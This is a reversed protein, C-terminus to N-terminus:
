ESGLIMTETFPTPYAHPRGHPEPATARRQREHQGDRRQNNGAARPVDEARADQLFPCTLDLGSLTAEGQGSDLQLLGLNIRGQAPDYGGDLRADDLALVGGALLPNKLTGAGFSLNWTADRLTLQAPDLAATVEGSVPLDLAGLAAVQPAAAAWLSPKVDTFSLRVVLESDTPLYTYDGALLAAAPGQGATLRFSGRTRDASRLLSAEAGDAHWQIGLSRDDVTLSADKVSLETLYGLTGKGDPPRVLDGVIRAGWGEAAEASLDGIGLHFGGQPDRDIRLVPGTVVIRTPAIAGSLAARVSFELSLEALTLQAGGDQRSLHVGRALIAIRGHDGLSILAHDVAAALGNGRSLMQGVYPAIPDLSIPGRTLLWLGFGAVVAVGAVLVALARELIRFSRRIV